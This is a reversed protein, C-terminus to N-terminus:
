YSWAEYRHRLPLGDYICYYSLAQYVLLKLGSVSIAWPRMCSYSWADYRYRLPLLDYICDYSLAQYVLLKLGSVSIAWPRM